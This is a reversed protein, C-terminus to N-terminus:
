QSAFRHLGRGYVVDISSQRGTPLGRRQFSDGSDITRFRRPVAFPTQPPHGARCEAPRHTGAPNDNTRRDTVLWRTFGKFATLYANSTSIGFTEATREASLWSTVASASVDSIFAFRCGGTIARIRSTQTKVHDATNNKAELYARYDAIHEALPKAEAVSRADLLGWKALSAKLEAPAVELWDALEADPSQNLKRREALRELKRALEETLKKNEFGPLKRHTGTHDRFKAYWKKTTRKKGNQTFTNRYVSAMTKPNRETPFVPCCFEGAPQTSNPSPSRRPNAPQTLHIDPNGHSTNSSPSPTTTTPRTLKEFEARVGAVIGSVSAFGAVSSKVFSAFNATVSGITGELGKFNKDTQKTAKASQRHGREFQRFMKENSKAIRDLVKLVDNGDGSFDFSVKNTM